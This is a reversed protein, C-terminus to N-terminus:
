ENTVKVPECGMQNMRSDICLKSLKRNEDPLKSFVFLCFHRFHESIANRGLRRSRLM